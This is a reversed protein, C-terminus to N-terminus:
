AKRVRLTPGRHKSRSVINPRIATAGALRCRATTQAGMVAREKIDPARVEGRDIGMGNKDNDEPTPEAVPVACIIQQAADECRRRHSKRSAQSQGMPENM